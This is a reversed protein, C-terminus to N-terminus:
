SISSLWKLSDGNTQITAPSEASLLLCSSHIRSAIQKWDYSGVSIGLLIFPHILKITLPETELGSSNQIPLWHHQMPLSEQTMQEQKFEYRILFCWNDVIEIWRVLSLLDITRSFSNTETRPYSLIGRSYLGEALHMTEHAPIHLKESAMKTM